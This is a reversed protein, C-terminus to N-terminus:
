KLNNFMNEISHPSGGINNPVNIIQGEAHVGLLGQWSPFRSCLCKDIYNFDFTSKENRVHYKRTFRIYKAM